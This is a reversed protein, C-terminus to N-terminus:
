CPETAAREELIAHIGSFVAYATKEQYNASILLKEEEPNSLFGCEVLLSPCESCQLIFYDGPKEVRKHGLTNNLVSQMTKAYAAGTESSPAYFVQAGQVTPSPFANQHISIVLDPSADEIIKRRAEMDKIKRNSKSLGYLGDSNSRTMVVRYGRNELFHRLSKAVALNVDSEKIGTTKGSVGGDMGGHGADIVVTKGTAAAGTGALVGAGAFLAAILVAAIAAGTIAFLTRKKIVLMM